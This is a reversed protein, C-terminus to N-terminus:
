LTELIQLDENTLVGRRNEGALKPNQFKEITIAVAPTYECRNLGIVVSQNTKNVGFWKVKGKLILLGIGRYFLARCNDNLNNSIIYRYNKSVEKEGFYNKQLDLDCLLTKIHDATKETNALGGLNLYWLLEQNTFEKVVAPAGLDLEVVENVNQQAAEPIPQNEIDQQAAEPITPPIEDIKAPNKVPIEKLFKVPNGEFKRKIRDIGFMKVFQTWIREFFNMAIRHVSKEVKGNVNTQVEVAYVRNWSSCHGKKAEAIVTPIQDQSCTTIKM